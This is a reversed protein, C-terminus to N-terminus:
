YVSIYLHGYICKGLAQYKFSNMLYLEMEAPEITRYRGMSMRRLASTRQVKKFKNKLEAYKQQLIKHDQKLKFFEDM